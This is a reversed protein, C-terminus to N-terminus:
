HDHSAAELTKELFQQGDASLSYIGSQDRNVLGLDTLISLANILRNSALRIPERYKDPAAFPWYFRGDRYSFKFTDYDQYRLKELAMFEHQGWIMERYLRMLWTGLKVAPDLATEDMLQFFGILPLRGQRAMELWLPDEQLHFRRFRLYLQALIQNGYLLLKEPNRSVKAADLYLTYEDKGTEFSCAQHFADESVAWGGGLGVDVCLKDLYDALSHDFSEAGATDRLWEGYETISVGTSKESLYLLFAAWLCQLGFTYLHRIEVLKWRFLWDQIELAPQVPLRPQYQDLYLAPRLMERKFQAGAGRVLDLVVGLALRRRAHSNDKGQQDFRFFADRLPELDDGRALVESCLCGQESYEIADGHSISTLFGSRM